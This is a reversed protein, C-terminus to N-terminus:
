ILPLSDHFNQVEGADSIEFVQARQWNFKLPSEGTMDWDMAMAYLCRIIGKHAIAGVESQQGAISKLWISLRQQVQLPSEGDPPCFHIGRAENQRMEDGLQKRLPKLIQGEWDGWDMEILAPEIRYSDIGLIDASARARLLPSCYWNLSKLGDPIRFSQMIRIGEKCLPQDIRGQIRKQLNWDTIGHRIITLRM